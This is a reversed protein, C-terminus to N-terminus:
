FAPELLTYPLLPQRTFFLLLSEHHSHDIGIVRKENLQQLPCLFFITKILFSGDSDRGM